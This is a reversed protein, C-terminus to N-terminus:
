SSCPCRHMAEFGSVRLVAKGRLRRNKLDNLVSATESWDAVHGIEPHLRGDTVLRVLESLDRGDDAGELQNYVFHRLTMGERGPFFRFFDLSLPKGSAEGFWLVLSRPALLPIADAMVDGGVSELVVHFPGDADSLSHVVRAGLEQLRQYPEEQSTLATVHAGARVVLEVAFHGVGGTAGTVLVRRGNLTGAERVLRLAVLGALPLAAAELPGQSDPRPVVLRSPVSVWEAAGGGSPSHALVRTGEPPGMGDSARRVVTGALDIGPRWTTKPATLYLFDPRNLSFAEVRILVEDPAPVPQPIEGFAVLVDPNGIALM